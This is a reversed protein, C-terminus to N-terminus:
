VEERTLRNLDKTNYDVSEELEGWGDDDDDDFDDWLDDDEEKKEEVKKNITPVKKNFKLKPPSELGMDDFDLDM